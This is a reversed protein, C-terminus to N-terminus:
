DPQHRVLWTAGLVVLVSGVVWITACIAVTLMWLTM